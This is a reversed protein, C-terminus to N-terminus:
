IRKIKKRILTIIKGYSSYPYQFNGICFCVYDLFADWDKKPMTVFPTEADTSVTVVKFLECILELLEESEPSTQRAIIPWGSWCANAFHHAYQRHEKNTIGEWAEAIELSMIPSNRPCRNAEPIDVAMKGVFAPPDRQSDSSFRRKAISRQIDIKTQLLLKQSLLSSSRISRHLM